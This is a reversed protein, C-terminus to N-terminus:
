DTGQRTDRTGPETRYQILRETKGMYEESGSRGVEEFGISELMRRSRLNSEHTEATFFDLQCESRGYDLMLLAAQRGAGRGWVGSDGIAIGLEASGGGIGALDAYGILRGGREIGLRVFDAKGSRVVSEWWRRLEEPDRNTGWENAECFAEDRSWRLVTEYDDMTLARLAISAEDRVSM